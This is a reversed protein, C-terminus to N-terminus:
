GGQDILKRAATSNQATVYYMYWFGDAGRFLPIMDGNNPDFIGTFGDPPKFKQKKGQTLYCELGRDYLKTFSCLPKNLDKFSDVEISFKTINSNSLNIEQVNLCERKETSM